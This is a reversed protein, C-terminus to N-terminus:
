LPRVENDQYALQGGDSFLLAIWTEGEVSFTGTIKGIHGYYPDVREIVIAHTPTRIALHTIPQIAIM